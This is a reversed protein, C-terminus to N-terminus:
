YLDWTNFSFSYGIIAASTIYVAHPYMFPYLQVNFVLHRHKKDVALDHSVAAYFCTDVVRFFVFHLTVFCVQCL